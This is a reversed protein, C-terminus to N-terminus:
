SDFLKKKKKLLLSFEVTTERGQPQGEWKGEKMAAIGFERVM